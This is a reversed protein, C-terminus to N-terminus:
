SYNTGDSFFSFFFLFFKTQVFYCLYFHVQLIFNSNCNQNTLFVFDEVTPVEIEEFKCGIFMATTGLLQLREKSVQRRSLFRDIINISLFTTDTCFQLKIHVNIIWSILLHRATEDIDKQKSMYKSPICHITEQKRLYNLIDSDYEDNHVGYLSMIKQKGLLLM